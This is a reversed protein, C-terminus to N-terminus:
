RKENYLTGCNTCFFEYYGNKVDLSQLTAGCGICVHERMEPEKTKRTLWEKLNFM